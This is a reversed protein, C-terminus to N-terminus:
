GVSRCFARVAADFDEPRELNSVHGAGRLVSLQAGPIADALERFVSLPSRVDEDGWILLTPVRITPLLDRTDARALATAMMRFGAPHFEAMIAGLEDRIEPAVAESFMGPLYRAVFESPPLLSDRLCAALREDPIPDPLSGKWGAYSDALVLSRVLAPTQRYLEQALLGGWSLGVLHARVIGLTDLFGALTTAWDEIGFPEPPDDSGGAGPADWAIVTLEDSLGQLQPRWIRSDQTFGHLLVLAPGSGARRYAISRAGVMVSSVVLDAPTM